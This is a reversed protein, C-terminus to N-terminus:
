NTRTRDDQGRREPLAREDAEKIVQELPKGCKDCKELANSMLNGCSCRTAGYGYDGSGTM